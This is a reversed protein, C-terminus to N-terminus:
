SVTGELLIDDIERVFVHTRTLEGNGRVYEGSSMFFNEFTLSTGVMRYYLSFYNSQEMFDTVPLAKQRMLAFEVADDRFSTGILNGSSDEEDYYLMGSIEYLKGATLTFSLDTMVGNVNTDAQLTKLEFIRRFNLCVFNLGDYYFSLLDGSAMQGARPDNGNKDKISVAGLGALNITAAGGTNANVVFFSIIMGNVLGSAEKQSDINELVYADAASGASEKYVAGHAAYNASAIAMQDYVLGNLAQGSSTILNNSETVVTNYQAATLNGGTTYPGQDYAM